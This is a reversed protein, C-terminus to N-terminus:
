KAYDPYLEVPPAVNTSIEKTKGYGWKQKVWKGEASLSWFYVYSDDSNYLWVNDKKDWIWYVNLNGVFTSDEDKYIVKGARSNITVKWVLGNSKSREVPVNLVYKGNYSVLNSKQNESQMGPSGLTSYFLLTILPLLYLLAQIVPLTKIKWTFLFVIAQFVVIPILLVIFTLLGIISGTMVWVFLAITSILFFIIAIYLRVKKYNNPMVIFELVRVKFSVEKEM